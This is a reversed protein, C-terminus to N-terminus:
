APPPHPRLTFAAQLIAEKYFFGDVGVGTSTDNEFVYALFGDFVHSDLAFM